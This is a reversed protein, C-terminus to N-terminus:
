VAQGDLAPSTDSRNTSELYASLLIQAALM